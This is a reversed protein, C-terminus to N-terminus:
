SSFRRGEFSFDLFILDNPVFLRRALARIEISIKDGARASYGVVIVWDMEPGRKNRAPRQRRGVTRVSISPGPMRFRDQALAQMLEAAVDLEVLFQRRECLILVAHSSPKHELRLDGNALKGEIPATTAGHHEKFDLVIM